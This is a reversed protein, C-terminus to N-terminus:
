INSGFDQPGAPKTGYPVDVGLAPGVNQTLEEVTGHKKVEPAEYKHKNIMKSKVERRKQSLYLITDHKYAQKKWGYLWYPL